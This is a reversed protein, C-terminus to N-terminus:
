TAPSQDRREFRWLLSDMTQDIQAAVRDDLTAAGRHEDTFAFGDWTLRMPWQCAEATENVRGMVRLGWFAGWGNRFDNWRLSLADSRRSSPLAPLVAAALIAALAATRRFAADSLQVDFLPASLLGAQGFALLGIAFGWRTGLYNLVGIAILSALLVRWIWSIELTAAHAAWAQGVPVMLVIWL